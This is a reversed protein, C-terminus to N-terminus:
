QDSEKIKALVMKSKVEAHAVWMSGAAIILTLYVVHAGVAGVGMMGMLTILASQFLAIIAFFFIVVAFNRAGLKLTATLNSNM